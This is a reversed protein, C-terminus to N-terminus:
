RLNVDTSKEWANHKPFAVTVTSKVCQDSNEVNDDCKCWCTNYQESTSNFSM